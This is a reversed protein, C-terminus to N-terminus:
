IVFKEPLRLCGLVVDPGLMWDGTRCGCFLRLVLARLLLLPLSPPFSKGVQILCCHSWLANDYKLQKIPSIESNKINVPTDRNINVARKCEGQQVINM